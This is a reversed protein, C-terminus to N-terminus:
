PVSSHTSAVSCRSHAPLQLPVDHMSPRLRSLRLGASPTSTLKRVVLGRAWRNFHEVAESSAEIVALLREEDSAFSARASRIDFAEAMAVAARRARAAGDAGGPGRVDESDDETPAVALAVELLSAPM